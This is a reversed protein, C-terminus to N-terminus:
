KKKKLKRISKIISSEHSFTTRQIHNFIPIFGEGEGDSFMDDFISDASDIGDSWWLDYEDDKLADELAPIARKDGIEGLAWAAASIVDFPKNKLLKILPKVARGDKIKGLAYIAVLNDTEEWLVENEHFDLRKILVDVAEKAKLEGLIYIPIYKNEFSDDKLLILLQQVSLNGYKKRWNWKRGM